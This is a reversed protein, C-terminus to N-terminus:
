TATRSDRALPGSLTAELGGHESRGLRLEFGHREAVGRAITLGLGLGGPQRQRAQDGRQRRELLKSLEAEPVGPGDDVVRLRFGAPAAEELLVAVHGGAHNYRVANHVLNSVAQELLTVDGVVLLPREPVGFEIAIGAPGAVPRHREVVREVLAGLDVPHREVLPEGAELKAAAGLNHILSALYQAEQMAAVLLADSEAGAPLGRRLDSLHGQLVTLPIMVDHTTDALFARLTRDRQELSALQARVRAGAENFAHALEGIEDSGAVRVPAAYSAHASRRVDATLSRIRGVLPGAAVFVSVVLVSFLPLTTVLTGLLVDAPPGLRRALVIACPGDSWGTRVALELGEDRGGTLMLRRSASDSGGELKQRLEAPFAPADPSVAHFTDDYTYARVPPPPPRPQAAGTWREPPPRVDRADAPLGPPPPGRRPEPPPPLFEGPATECRDRGLWAARTVVFDRLAQAESRRRLEGRIWAVCALLPLATAVLTVVLRRRLTM